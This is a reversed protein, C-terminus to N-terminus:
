KYLGLRETEAVLEEMIKTQRIREMELYHLIDAYRIRRHAGTKRSPLKGDDLLKVLSPRSVQLVEAAQRITLESEGPVLAVAHGKAMEQLADFLLRVAPVPLEIGVGNNNEIHLHIGSPLAHSDRFFTALVESSERAVATEQDSPSVAGTTTFIFM